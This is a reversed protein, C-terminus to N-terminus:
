TVARFWNTAIWKQLQTPRGSHLSRWNMIPGNFGGSTGDGKSVKNVWEYNYFVVADGPEVHVVHKTLPQDDAHELGTILLGDIGPTKDTAIEGSTIDPPQDDMRTQNEQDIEEVQAYPFWTGAVGNVYTLVTLFRSMADHHIDYKGDIEYHVVQLPESDVLVIASENHYAKLENRVFLFSSLDTM